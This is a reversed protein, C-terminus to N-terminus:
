WVLLQRVDFLTFNPFKAISYEEKQEGWKLSGKEEEEWVKIFKYYCRFCQVSLYEAGSM